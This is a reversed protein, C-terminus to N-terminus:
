RDIQRSIRSHAPCTRFCRSAKARMTPITWYYVSSNVTYVVAPVLEMVRVPTTSWMTLGDGDFDKFNDVVYYFCLGLPILFLSHFLAIVATLFADLQWSSMRWVNKNPQGSRSSTTTTTSNESHAITQTILANTNSDTEEFIATSCHAETTSQRQLNGADKITLSRRHVAHLLRGSSKASTNTDLPSKSGLARKITRLETEERMLTQPASKQPSTKAKAKHNSILPMLLSESRHAPSQKLRSMKRKKNAVKTQHQSSHPSVQWSLTTSTASVSKTSRCGTSSLLEASRTRYTTPTTRHLYALWWHITYLSLMCLLVCFFMSMYMLTRGRQDVVSYLNCVTFDRGFQRGMVDNTVTIGAIWVGGMFVFTFTKDTCFFYFKRYFTGVFSVISTLMANAVSIAFFLYMATVATTCFRYVCGTTAQLDWEVTKLLMTLQFCLDWGALNLLLIRYRRHVVSQRRYLVLCVPVSLLIGSANIGIKAYFFGAASDV